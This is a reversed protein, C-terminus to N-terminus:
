GSHIMYHEFLLDIKLIIRTEKDTVITGSFIPSKHKFENALQVKNPDIKIIGNINEVIIGLYKQHHSCIILPTDLSYNIEQELGLYNALDIVIVSKGYLNCFGKIYTDTQPIPQLSVFPLTRVISHADICCYINPLDVELMYTEQTERTLLKSM